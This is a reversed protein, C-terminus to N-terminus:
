RVAGHAAQVAGEFQEVFESPCRPREGPEFSLARAFVAHMQPPLDAGPGEEDPLCGTIMEYAVVGLAWVDWSIAPKEGAAQEPAMYDPTGFLEGARTLSRVTNPPLDSLLRAIGFDLVKVTPVSEQQIIFVNEPKLDRHVIGRAHAAELAAAMGRLLTGAEKYGVSGSRSIRDRLTTGDLCEMVLYAGSSTVGFDHVVVINPHNLAAILRAEREFRSLAGAHEVLEDRIVKVAVRRGLQTDVAEYVTGMGGRALRRELLYRRGLRRPSRAIAMTSADAPCRRTGPAECRGCVPCETMGADNDSEDGAELVLALSDAIAQLLDKDDSAYPEESRRPGLVILAERGPSSLAVPVLLEVGNIELWGRAEQPLQAAVGRREALAADLPTGVARLLALLASASGLVTIRTGAPAVAIAECLETGARRLLMATVVPCLAADIRAVVHAAAAEFTGARRIDAAVEKLLRQANYRQRFFRRDLADLWAERRVRAVVALALLGAYLWGRGELIQSLPETRHGLVDLALAFLIAPVIAFLARRALAYQIGTRIITPVDFLRHRLIAYTFGLPFLLMWITGLALLPSGFLSHSLEVYSRAWYGTVMPLGVAMAALSSAVVVRTRRRELEGELAQYGTVLLVLGALVYAVTIPLIVKALAAGDLHLGPRYLMDLVLRVYWGLVLAMPLWALLWALPQRLWRRPFVAFFSFMVAGIAVVSLHPVWLFLALPAPLASWVSALRYPPVVTFVATAALLWGGLWGVVDSPRRWWVLLAAALTSAQVCRVVALALGEPRLWYAAPAHELVLATGFLTGGREVTLAVAQNLPFTLEAAM